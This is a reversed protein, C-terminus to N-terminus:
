GGRLEEPHPIREDDGPVKAFKGSKWDDKARGLRARDSSVFNWDIHREGELPAGGVLMLRAPGQTTISVAGTPVVALHGATVAVEGVHVEGEVVYVAREAHEGDLPLMAGAELLAHVYLTPSRVAVPSRAGYATGLIVDLTALPLAVRPISASPHHVFEPACEEDATPLAVWSQIGFLKPGERRSEADSRESHVIGSGAVMWNIDGPMIPQFFGLSDRHDIRGEFLYTVTALGIHPHPRVDLGHGAPMHVPGMQDLFVFPGVRRRRITPLARKVVFGDGLDSARAEIVLTEVVPAESSM